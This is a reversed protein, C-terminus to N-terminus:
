TLGSRDAPREEAALGSLLGKESPILRKNPVLGLHPHGAESVRSLSPVSICGKSLVM